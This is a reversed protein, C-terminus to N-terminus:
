LNIEETLESEGSSWAKIPLHAGSFGFLEKTELFLDVVIEIELQDLLEVCVSEHKCVLL